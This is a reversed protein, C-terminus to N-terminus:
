VLVKQGGPAADGGSFVARMGAAGERLMVRADSLLAGLDGRWMGAQPHSIELRELALGCPTLRAQAPTSIWQLLGPWAGGWPMEGSESTVMAWRLDGRELTIPLGWGGPGRGLVHGLEDTACVWHSLRVGAQRGDLGFWRAYKPAPADPDVAIVELYVGDALALVANHTGFFAHKGGVQMAVGLAAEVHAVGDELRDCSVVIHDLHMM